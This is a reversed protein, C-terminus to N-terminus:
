GADAWDVLWQWSDRIQEVEEHTEAADITEAIDAGSNGVSRLDDALFYDQM